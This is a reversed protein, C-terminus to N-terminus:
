NIFGLKNLFSFNLQKTLIYYDSYFEIKGATEYEVSDIFEIVDINSKNKSLYLLPKLELDDGNIQWTFFFNRRARQGQVYCETGMEMIRNPFFYLIFIQVNEGDQKVTSYFNDTWYGIFGLEVKNLKFAEIFDKSGKNSEFTSDLKEAEGYTILNSFVKNEQCSVFFTFMLLVCVVFYKKM